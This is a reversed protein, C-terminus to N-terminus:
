PARIRGRSPPRTARFTPRGQRRAAKMLGAAACRFASTRPSNERSEATRARAEITRALRPSAPPRDTSCGGRHRGEGACRRRHADDLAPRAVRGTACAAEYAQAAARWRAPASRWRRVRSSTPSIARAEADAARRTPCNRASRAAQNASCRSCNRKSRAFGQRDPPRSPRPRHPPRRPRARRRARDHRIRPMCASPIDAAMPKADGSDARRAAAPSAKASRAATRVPRAHHDVTMTVSGNVVNSLHTGSTEM